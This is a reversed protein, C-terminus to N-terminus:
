PTYTDLFGTWTDGTQEELQAVYEALQSNGKAIGSPTDPKLERVIKEDFNIADVRRGNDLVVEFRYSGPLANKYNRHADRGRKSTALLQLNAEGTTKKKPKRGRKKKRGPKRKKRSKDKLMGYYKSLGSEDTWDNTDEVYSHLALTGSAFRIPDESIYRGLEPDYYRFRNYALGTEHDYYQGQFLFPISVYGEPNLGPQTEELIKGNMDLRRCWVEKGEEDYAETPTGLQDCVISYAKGDQILALPVFSEEEFLWTKLDESYSKLGGDEYREGTRWEHLPVNGNWLYHFTADGLKTLRRGLADYTFRTWQGYRHPSRVGELMGNQTWSYEWRDKKASFIGANGRFKEILQGDKDYKFTWEGSKEIRGGELYKRLKKDPDNYLNGVKDSLRYEKMGDAYTAMTLEGSPSYSYQTLGYRDDEISLLRDASGWNYHRSRRQEASRRTKSDVLRGINDYAFSQSVGGPLLRELEFGLSDYQHESTFRANTEAENAKFCILEGYENREYSLQAGLSSQLSRILGHKDYSRKILYEDCCEEVPLGLSNYRFSVRAHENVAERIRGSTWYSYSHKEVQDYDHTIETVRGCKDYGYRKFKGSPLTEKLVRGASDREYYRTAGDFGSEAIVYGAADLTFDYSEWNENRVERLREECDHFFNIVGRHDRRRVLKWMGEYGYEVKQHDDQYHILNDIGDYSLQIHNGDFDDVGIIRGVLDYRRRQRAGKANIVEICRGLGDYSYRTVNGRSDAAESVNHWRDYSLKTVVGFSDTVEEVLGDKYSLTTKAGKPNSRELVNGVKDYVFSWSGGDLTRVALPRYRLERTKYYTLEINGGEPDTSSLRNGLADYSYLYSNGEPDIEATVQGEDNHHTRWEAGNPDIRLYVLGDKHYYTTKKDYSDLVETYGEFFRLKHNYINQSGWTHICRAGIETGDYEFFWEVGNRWVEHTLLRGEYAYRISDGVANTEELLNGQEDYCYRAICVEKHLWNEPDPAYVALIRGRGDHEFRLKRDATDIIEKLWGEATYSFRISFGNVDSVRELLQVEDYSAQTFHYYLDEDIQYLTYRGDSDVRLEVREKIDLTPEEQSPHKLGIPRGDSLRLTVNQEDVVLGMDYAHHWGNGLPGEYDSKSYWTREWSIPIVGTLFFDEEDTFFLGSSVDVPHGTVTCITKHWLGQLSKSGIKSNVKDHLKQALRKTKKRYFRGLSGMLKRKLAAIPNLPTPIPNTLVPRGMPIPIIVGTPMFLAFYESGGKILHPTPIGIDWCDMHLHAGGGSLPEGDALVNLSGMFAHGVNRPPLIFSGGLPFHFINRTPTGAVARPIFDGLKVTAGTMSIVMTAVTHALETLKTSDGEGSQANSPPAPPPPLISALAVAIFDKPNILLGIYPNPLPGGPLMIHCDIGLVPDLQKSVPLCAMGKLGLQALAPLYASELGQEVVGQLAMGAKLGTDVANLGPSVGSAANSEANSLVGSCSRGVSLELQTSVSDFYGRDPTNRRPM